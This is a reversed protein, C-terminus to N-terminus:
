LAARVDVLAHDVLRTLPADDDPELPAIREDEAAAALLRLGQAPGADGELDDGADRRREPRRGVGADRQRVPLVGAGDGEDRGMNPLRTSTVRGAPCSASTTRRSSSSPASTHDCGVTTM